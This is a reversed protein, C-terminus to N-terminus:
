IIGWEGVNEQLLKIDNRSDNDKMHKVKDKIAHLLLTNNAKYDINLRPHYIHASRLTDTYILNNIKGLRTNFEDDEAGYGLFKENYGRVKMFSPVHILGNGHAHGGRNDKNLIMLEDYSSTYKLDYINNNWPIVRNITSNSIYTCMGKIYGSQYVLDIDSFIFFETNIYNKVAYNILKSKNFYGPCHKHYIKVKDYNLLYENTINEESGNFIVIEIDEGVISNVSCELRLCASEFHPSIFNLVYLVQIM